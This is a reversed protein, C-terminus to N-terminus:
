ELVTGDHKILRVTAHQGDYSTYKIGKALRYYVLPNSVITQCPENDDMTWTAGPFFRLRDEGDSRIEILANDVGDLQWVFEATINGLCRRLGCVATYFFDYPFRDLFKLDVDTTHVTVRELGHPTPAAWHPEEPLIDFRKDPFEYAYKEFVFCSQYPIRLTRIANRQTPTLVDLLGYLIGSRRLYVKKAVDDEALVHVFDNQHFPMLKTERHLQHCVSTLTLFKTAPRGESTGKPYVRAERGDESKPRFCIQMGSLAYKYVRNRLEAPLRLLPSRTSNEESIVDM